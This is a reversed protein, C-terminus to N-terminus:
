GPIELSLHPNRDAMERIQGHMQELKQIVARRLGEQTKLKQQAQVSLPSSPPIQELLAKAEGLEGQIKAIAQYSTQVDQLTSIAQPQIRGLAHSSTVLFAEARRLSRQVQATQLQSAAIADAPSPAAAIQDEALSLGRASAIAVQASGLCHGADSCGTEPQPQWAMMGLILGAGTLGGIQPWIMQLSSRLRLATPTRDLDALVQQANTYRKKPDLSVMRDLVWALREDKLRAYIRWNWTGDPNQLFKPRLGTLLVLTTVGLAYLDSHAGSEGRSLQEPPAYGVKGVISPQEFRLPWQLAAQAIPKVIGFDILVPQQTKESLLLNDPAIDRHIVKQNHLYGLVPLLQRLLKEVEQANFTKREQIREQLLQSYSEGQIFEQVLCLRGEEAFFAMLKPIQPHNLVKLTAAERHFLEVAKGYFDEDLSQLALEKVVCLHRQKLDRALYTRGFGGQGLLHQVQYRHALLAGAPMPGTPAVPESLM